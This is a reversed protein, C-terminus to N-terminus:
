GKVYINQKMEAAMRKYFELVREENKILADKVIIPRNLEPTKIELGSLFMQYCREVDERAMNDMEEPTFIKQEVPKSKTREEIGSISFRTNIYPILIKDILNLNMEKGWDEVVTGTKRFAFEIEDINLEPYKEVLYKQVQDILINLFEERIPITWGTIVHIKMILAKGWMSVEADTMEGIQKSKYKLEVVRREELTLQSKM